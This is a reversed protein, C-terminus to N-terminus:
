NKQLTKLIHRIQKDSDYWWDMSWIRHLKWGLDELVAQRLKDRDRATQARHYTAGDCEIGVLYKGPAMPDVIALDIRYGSCGIQHHVEFGEMRLRDAVLREFESEAPAHASISAAAALAVPGREAFDLFHKLDRVGNAKTRSLNIQDARITSFVVMEQRARTIAVNLRREGGARTLPGFNMSVKGAADPGYCISFLIVDREDGQVNELNKVFVPELGDASSESFFKEIEPHARRKADLLGEILSQQAMSFTVVGHSRKSLKPDLLRNVLEEVLAEAEMRNTRSKGHDYCGDSIPRFAVGGHGTFPSPFTLLDNEYYRRNSFAILGEHRSRYHWKLRKHRMGAGMLEELISELDEQPPNEEDDDDDSDVKRAFFNTPPLQKPDGVVILQRGRAIAGVSDWVPIQSAEDFIVLDFPPLAPDLYQAVSLPSMLFCPKMAPLADQVEKLLKRVPMHRTKKSIERQLLTFSSGLEASRKAEALNSFLRAAIARKTLDAFRADKRRFDEVTSNQVSERFDRLLPEQELVKYLLSKRFSRELLSGMAGSPPLSGMPELKDVIPQLGAAVGDRRAARWSCWMRIRQWHSEFRGLMEEIAFLHDPSGDVAGRDLELAAALDNFGNMLAALKETYGLFVADLANKQFNGDHVFAAVSELLRGLWEADRGALDHVRKQLTEAWAEARAIDGALPEGDRWIPGLIALAQPRAEELRKGIEQLRAADCLITEIEVDNAQGSKGLFSNVTEPIAMVVEKILKIRAQGASAAQNKSHKALEKRLHFREIAAGGPWIIATAKWRKQLMAPDAQLLSAEDFGSLKERLAAREAALSKWSGLLSSVESWPKGVLDPGALESEQLSAGLENMNYIEFISFGRAPAKFVSAVENLAPRFGAVVNKLDRIKQLLDEALAPAWTTLGIEALPHGAIGEADAAAQELQRCLATLEELRNEPIEAPNGLEPLTVFDAGNLAALHGICQFATLGSPYIKHLTNAYNNLSNRVKELESARLSWERVPPQDALDIAAKFQALVETKGIKNSHLQLCFAELGEEKLRNYVVDLATRKEAVFLVRKGEAVCQAIINSITQSKGTGPPGELVFDQGAAAAMVAALQSSDASRPCFVDKPPFKGDLEHSHIEGGTSPFPASPTNVLHSVVHNEVLADMRDNLDKWLLFKSFSFQGLWVEAKVEWGPLDRVAKKFIQLVAKADIGNDDEPLPDLGAIELQFNQRLMELLTTNVRPDDDIKRLSFGQSVSKRKLEVPVLLIPAKQIGDRQVADKWELIGVAAYLTNVGNEEMTARSDRFLKLLRKDHEEEDLPTHLIKKSLEEQLFAALPDTKKIKLFATASRPDKKGMMKPVPQLKLEDESLADEVHEPNPALIPVSGKTEKFNLLRNRLTLDLLRNKWRAIRLAPTEQSKSKVAEAASEPIEGTELNAPAEVDSATAVEFFGGKSPLPLIRERRARHVDLVMQFASDRKLHQEALARADSFAPRNDATVTTAEWVIMEGLEVRKRIMQLDDMATEPLSEEALWCGAYAHGQHMLVLPHLGAQECCAAFFLALDLCTGFRQDKIDSPFRVKQGAREFSAPPSIYRIGMAVIASHIAAVQEAVHKPSKSQYGNLTSGEGQERLIKAAGDLAAVVAPDNPLVYAALLVPFIDAGCWESRPMAFIEQVRSAVLQGGDLCEIRIQGRVKETLNDLYTPNLKWDWLPACFEGGAALSDWRIEHPEAFAPEATIRVSMAGRDAGANRIRLEQLVPIANQQFALSVASSCELTIELTDKQASSKVPMKLCNAHRIDVLLPGM